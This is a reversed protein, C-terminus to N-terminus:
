VEIGENIKIMRKTDLNTIRNGTYINIVKISSKKIECVKGVELLHTNKDSIILVIDGYKYDLLNPNDKSTFNLFIENKYPKPYRNGWEDLEPGKYLIDGKRLIIDNGYKEDLMKVRITNNNKDHFMRWNLWLFQTWSPWNTFAGKKFQDDNFEWYDQEFIKWMDTNEFPYEQGNEQDIWINLFKNNWRGEVSDKPYKYKAKCYFLAGNKNVQYVVDIRPNHYCGSGNKGTFPIIWDYFKNM